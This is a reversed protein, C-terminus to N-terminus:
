RRKGAARKRGVPRKPTKRRKAATGKRPSKAAAAKKARKAAARKPAAKREAGGKAGDEGEGEPRGEEPQEPHVSSSSTGAGSEGPVPSVKNASTSLPPQTPRNAAGGGGGKELEYGSASITKKLAAAGLKAAQREKTAAVAELIQEAVATAGSGGKQPRCAAKKRAAADLPAVAAPVDAKAPVIEAMLRIGRPRQGDGECMHSFRPPSM